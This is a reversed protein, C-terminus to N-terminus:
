IAVAALLNSRTRETPNPIISAMASTAGLNGLVSKAWNSVMPSIAWTVKTSKLCLSPLKRTPAKAAMIVVLSPSGLTLGSAMIPTTQPSSMGTIYLKMAPYSCPALYMLGSM